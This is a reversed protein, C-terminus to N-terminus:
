EGLCWRDYDVAATSANLVTFHICVSFRCNTARQHRMIRTRIVYHTVDSSCCTCMPHASRVVRRRRLVAPRALWVRAAASLAAIPARVRVCVSVCLCLRLPTTWVAVHMRGSRRFHLVPWRRVISFTSLTVIAVYLRVSPAVVNDRTFKDPYTPCAPGYRPPRPPESYPGAFSRSEIRNRITRGIRSEIRLSPGIRFKRITRATM